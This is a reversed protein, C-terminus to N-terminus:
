GWNTGFSNKIIIYENDGDKGWGIAVVAHDLDDLSDGKCDKISVIGSDYFLFADAYSNVGVALASHSLGAKFQFASRPTLRKFSNVSVKGKSPDVKCTGEKATYPYDKETELKHTKLYEFAWERWGGYCGQNGYDWACDVM